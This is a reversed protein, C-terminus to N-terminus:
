INDIFVDRERQSIYDLLDKPKLTKIYNLEEYKALSLEWDHYGRSKPCLDELSRMKKPKRCVNM